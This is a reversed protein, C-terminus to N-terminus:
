TPCTARRSFSPRRAPPVEGREGFEAGPRTGRGDAAQAAENLRDILGRISSTGGPTPPPALRRALFLNAFCSSSALVSSRGVFLGLTATLRTWFVSDFGVSTYWLADTWLDLGVGFLLVLGLVLVIGAVLGFSGDPADQTGALAPVTTRVM